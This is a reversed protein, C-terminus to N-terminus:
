AQETRAVVLATIHAAGAQRLAHTAANLTAGTTMVDDLLVIRQGQLTAARTPEVAFAGQLNRLRQSRPLGSQAETARLRLLLTADVKPAALHHALLAAQNFGREQLRARSLPVPLVRDAAELAPEVWPTSRLLTALAAAWSPDGRFKFEAIAGAWPYAYDVAALCADLAPPERLCAGCESVGDPVPLACRTCRARPQAFRAACDDCVRRAPWAHCVACQSPLHGVLAGIRRSTGALMKHLM